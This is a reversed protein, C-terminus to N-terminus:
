FGGGSLRSVLRESLVVIDEVCFFSQINKPLLLTASPPLEEDGRHWLLRVRVRPYVRFDVALDARAPAGAAQVQSAGLAAVAQALTEESRGVTHCLRGIVRAQYVPAYARAAPLDAFTVAPQAQPPQAGVALYHLTLVQWFPGVPEGASTGICGTQPQWLLVDDLVRLQWADEAPSAGLWQLQQPSQARADAAARSVAQRLNQQPPPVAPQGASDSSQRGM